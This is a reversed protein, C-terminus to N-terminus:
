SPFASPAVYPILPIDLALEAYEVGEQQLTAKAGGESVAESLESIEIPPGGRKMPPGVAEEAEPVSGRPTLVIQRGFVTRARRLFGGTGVVTLERSEAVM